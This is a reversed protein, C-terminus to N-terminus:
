VKLHRGIKNVNDLAPQKAGLRRQFERHKLIQQRINTPESAIHINDVVECQNDHLWMLM